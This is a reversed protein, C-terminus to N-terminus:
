NRKKLFIMAENPSEKKCRVVLKELEKNEITKEFLPTINVWFIVATSKYSINNHLYELKIIIHDLKRKTPYIDPLAYTKKFTYDILECETNYAQTDITQFSKTFYLYCSIFVLVVFLCQTLDNYNIWKKIM